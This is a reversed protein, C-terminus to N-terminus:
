RSDVITWITSRIDPIAVPHPTHSRRPFNILFNKIMVINLVNLFIHMHFLYPLIIFGM